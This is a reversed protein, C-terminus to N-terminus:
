FLEERLIKLTGLLGKLTDETNRYKSKVEEYLYVDTSLNTESMLIMNGCLHELLPTGATKQYSIIIKEPKTESGKDLTFGWDEEWSASLFLVPRVTIKIHELALQNKTKETTFQLETIKRNRVTFPDLLKKFIAHIPKQVIGRVTGWSGHVSDTGFKANERATIPLAIPEM